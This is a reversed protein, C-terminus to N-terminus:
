PTKALPSKPRGRGLKPKEKRSYAEPTVPRPPLAGTEAGRARRPSGL